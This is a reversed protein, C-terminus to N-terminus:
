LHKVIVLANVETVKDSLIKTLGHKWIRATRKDSKDALSYALCANKGSLAIFVNSKLDEPAHTLSLPKGNKWFKAVTNMSALTDQTGAVYVDTGNVVISSAKSVIINDVQGPQSKIPDILKVPNGNKWYTALGSEAGAIYVDNGVVFVSYAESYDSGHGINKDIKINIRKGNKWYRLEKSQNQGLQEYGVVYVDSNKVAVSTARAVNIGDTLVVPQGNRWYKAVANNLDDSGSAAKQGDCEYGAVYVDNGIVAISSAEANVTGDTIDMFKKNKWYGAITGNRQPVKNKSDTVVTHQSSGSEYVADKNNTKYGSVYVDNGFVAIGSAHSFNNLDTLRVAEGNKWYTATNNEDGAIYIDQDKDFFRSNKDALQGNCSCFSLVTLLFVSIRHRTEM